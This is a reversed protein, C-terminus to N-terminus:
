FKVDALSGQDILVKHVKRGVTVFFIVQSVVDELDSSAFYLSPESSHDPRRTELSMVVQAYRKRKSAFNGRGSFGRSITNLEGHVSIEHAQDRLAVEGKPEGQNAELYEKLFGEEV